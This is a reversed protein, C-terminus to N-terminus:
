RGRRRPTVSAPRGAPVAGRPVRVDSVVHVTRAPVGGRAPVRVPTVVRVFGQRPRPVRTGPGVVRTHVPRRRVVATRGSTPYRRGGSRGYGRPGRHGRYGRYGGHGRHARRHGYSLGRAHRRAVANGWQPDGLVRSTSGALVRGVDGVDTPYGAARRRVLTGAAGDVIGPLLRVAPRTNPDSRLLRTLVAAGRLLHPLMREIDRRDRRSLSVTIAAGAFAEAEDESEASAARAALYEGLAQAGSVPATAMEELEGELEDELEGELQSTVARALMGAAPGGVATAVMPGAVKAIKKLLARNKYLFGGIKRFFEEAEAEAEDEDEGEWEGEGDGGGGILSGAIKMLPGFFAEDEDEDESETETELEAEWEAEGEVEWEDEAEEEGEGLLSGAINALGGLFDEDEDETEWEGEVEFEDELEEEFAPQTRLQSM